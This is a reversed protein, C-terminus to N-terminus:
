NVLRINKTLCFIGYKNWCYSPFVWKQVNLHVSWILNRSFGHSSICHYVSWKNSHIAMDSCTSYRRLISMTTLYPNPNLIDKAPYRLGNVSFVQVFSISKIKKIPRQTSFSIGKGFQLMMPAALRQMKQKFRFFISGIWFRFNGPRRSSTKM